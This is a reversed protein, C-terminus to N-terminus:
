FARAPGINLGQAHHVVIDNAGQDLASPDARTWALERWEDDGYTTIIVSIM